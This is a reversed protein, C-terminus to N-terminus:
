SRELYVFRSRKRGEIRERKVVKSIEGCVESSKCVSMEKVKVKVKEKVKEKEKEEHHMSKCVRTEKRKEEHYRHEEDEHKKEEMNLSQMCREEEEEKEKTLINSNVKFYYRRSRAIYEDYIESAPSSSSSRTLKSEGVLIFVIINGLIIFFCKANLFLYIKNPLSFLLHKISPFWFPYSLFLCTILSTLTYLVFNYLFQARKYNKIVQIKQAKISCEM